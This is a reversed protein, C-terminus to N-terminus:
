IPVVRVSDAPSGCGLPAVTTQEIFSISSTATTTSSDYLTATADMVVPTGDYTYDGSFITKSVSVGSLLQTGSAMITSSQVPDGTLDDWTVQLRYNDTSTVTDANLQWNPFNPTTTGNTPFTFNIHPVAIIFDTSTSNPGFM